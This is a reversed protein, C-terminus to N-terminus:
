PLGLLIVRVHLASDLTLMILRAALVMKALAVDCGAKQAQDLLKDLRSRRVQHTGKCQVLLIDTESCFEKRSWPKLM